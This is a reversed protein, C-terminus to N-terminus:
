ENPVKAGENKASVDFAGSASPSNDDKSLRPLRIKQGAEIHDPDTVVPNLKQIQEILKRSDQGLTRLVIVHLTDGSQVVVNLTESDNNPLTPQLPTATPIEGVNAGPSPILSSASATKSSSGGSKSSKSATSSDETKTQWFRGIRSPSYTVFVGAAGISAAVSATGLAWRRLRSKSKTRPSLVPGTTVPAHTARNTLVPEILSEMDLDAVVERMIEADIAKRHFSITWPM